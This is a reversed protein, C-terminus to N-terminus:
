SRWNGRYLATSLRPIRDSPPGCKPAYVNAPHQLRAEAHAARQLALREGRSVGKPAWAIGVPSIGMLAAYMVCAALYWGKPTPHSHLTHPDGLRYLSLYLSHSTDRVRKWAASVRVVEADGGASRIAARYRSYGEDILAQMELHNVRGLTPTIFSQNVRGLGDMFAWPAFFRVSGRPALRALYLAAAKSAEFQRRLIRRSGSAAHFTPVQSQDQLVVLDWRRQQLRFTANIGCATCAIARRLCERRSVCRTNKGTLPRAHDSLSFWEFAVVQLLVRSPCHSKSILMEMIHAVKQVLSNGIFLVSLDWEQM